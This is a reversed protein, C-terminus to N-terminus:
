NLIKYTRKENGRRDFKNSIEVKVTDYGKFFFGPQNPDEALGTSDIAYVIVTSNYAETIGCKNTACGTALAVVGLILILKKM